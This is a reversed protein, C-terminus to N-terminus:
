RMRAKKLLNFVEADTTQEFDDYWLGVASFDYPRLPCVIRDVLTAMEACTDFAAVPVAMIISVPKKLRLAKIAARMTAGTAIGDDVLIIIKNALDILEYNGRYAIERRELEKKESEIEQELSTKSINLDHLITENFVIAGGSAIAGMALEEHWPVGLKRVVFVDLPVSLAMAIEYAVPVGGRPLALVIVNSQKAYRSLEAALLKGAEYRDAYKEM